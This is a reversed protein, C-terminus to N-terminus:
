IRGLLGKFRVREGEPLPSLIEGVVEALATEITQITTRGEDTLVLLSVRGDEPLARREILGKRELSQVARTIQARDRALRRALDQLPVPEMESLTLLLIGGHPGVQHNDFADARANLGSHIRRM